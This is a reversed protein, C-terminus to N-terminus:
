ITRRDDEGSTNLWSVLRVTVNTADEEPVLFFSRQILFQLPSLFELESPDDTLATVPRSNLCAEIRCMLTLLESFTLVPEGIVRSM